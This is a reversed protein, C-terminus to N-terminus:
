TRFRLGIFLGATSGDLLLNGEDELDQILLRYAAELDLNPSLHFRFGYEINGSSSSIGGIDPRGGLDIGLEMTVAKAFTMEGLIGVTPEILTVSDELFPAPPGSSPTQTPEFSARFDVYRLGVRPALRVAIVASGADDADFLHEYVTRSLRLDITDLQFENRSPIRRFGAQPTQAFAFPTRGVTRTSQGSAELGWRGKAAAVRWAPRLRPEDANLFEVPIRRSGRLEIAGAPSFYALRASAELRIPESPSAGEDIARTLSDAQSAPSQAAAHTLSLGLIAAAASRIM